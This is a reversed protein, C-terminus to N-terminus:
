GGKRDKGWVRLSTPCQQTSLLNQFYKYSRLGSWSLLGKWQLVPIAVFRTGMLNIAVGLLVLIAAGIKWAPLFEGLLKASCLLSVIPVLLAYPAVAAIQYRKVLASWVGYGVWTSGYVLYAVAGIELWSIHQLGVGIVVFNFGWVMVVLLALIVHIFRM